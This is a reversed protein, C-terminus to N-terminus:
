SQDPAQDGISRNHEVPTSEDTAAVWRRALNKDQKAQMDRLANEVTGGHRLYGDLALLMVDVWESLDDPSQRIEELEKQIHRILGTTQRGSGFTAYSWNRHKEVFIEFPSM